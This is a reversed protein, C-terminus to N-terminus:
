NIKLISLYNLYPSYVRNLAVRYTFNIYLSLNCSAYLM